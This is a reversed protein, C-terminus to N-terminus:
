RGKRLKVQKTLGRVYSQVGKPTPTEGTGQGSKMMEVLKKKRAQHPRPLPETKM